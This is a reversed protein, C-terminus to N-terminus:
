QWHFLNKFFQLIPEFFGFSSQNYSPDNQSKAIEDVAIVKMYGIQDDAGPSASIFFIARDYDKLTFYISAKIRDVLSEDVSPYLTKYIANAEDQKHMNELIMVKTIQFQLNQAGDPYKSLAGDVYSIMDNYQGLQYMPIMKMVIVDPSSPITWTKSFDQAEKYKHLELLANFACQDVLLGQEIQAAQLCFKQADDYQQLSLLAQGKMSLAEFSNSQNSLLGESKIIQSTADTIKHYVQEKGFKAQDDYPDLAVAKDYYDFADVLRNYHEFAKADYVLTGTDNIKTFNNHITAIIENARKEVEPSVSTQAFASLSFLSLILLTPLAIIM